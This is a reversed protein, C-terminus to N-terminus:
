QLDTMTVVSDGDTVDLEGEWIRRQTENRVLERRTIERQLQDDDYQDLGDM